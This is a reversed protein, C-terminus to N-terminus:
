NVRQIDKTFIFLLIVCIERTFKEIKVYSEIQKFKDVSSQSGEMYKYQGYLYSLIISIYFLTNPDSHYNVIEIVLRDVTIETKLNKMVSMIIAKISIIRELESYVISPISIPPIFIPPISIIQTSSHIVSPYVQFMSMFWLAIGFTNIYIKM